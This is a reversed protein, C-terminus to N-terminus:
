HQTQSRLFESHLATAEDLFGQDWLMMVRDTMWPEVDRFLAKKFIEQLVKIDNHYM